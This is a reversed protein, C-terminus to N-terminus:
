TEISGLVKHTRNFIDDLEDLSVCLPLFLYVVDGLPRLILNNELGKRYINLGVRDKSDFPVKTKKDKVLEIAAVTGVGRVDGIHDLPRISELFTKMKKSIVEVHELVDNENFLDLSAIAAACSVPNATYTHGHFFTKYEHYDGYFADYVDTTTMTVGLPLYGSTIGKSLCMFDPNIGAYESAFMKGTRGFGTAVEDVILHVDYKEALRKVGELYKAPYIIMGGAGMLMPELIIAAIESNDIKLINDMESLCEIGCEDASRDCPCRYCYPTSVQYGELLMSRFPKTYISRGSVSMAGLTDGHYGRDLSIFKNKTLRGTNKWYQYSMKLAVEVATSGNDSYFVRDLGSPTIEVLRVALEVAPSHTFGAFLVHEFDELQSHIAKKIKPNNHGHVNCWWSSITDYYWNGEADYIKIGRAEKVVIPPLDLCDKM